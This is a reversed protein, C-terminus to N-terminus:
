KRAFYQKFDAYFRDQSRHLLSIKGNFPSKVSSHLATSPAVITYSGKEGNTLSYNYSVPKSDSKSPGPKNEIKVPSSQQLQQPTVPVAPSSAIVNNIAPIQASSPKKNGLAAALAPNTGANPIASLNKALRAKFDEKKESEQVPENPPDSTTIRSDVEKVEANSSAKIQDPSQLTAAIQANLNAASNVKNNAPAKGIAEQSAAINVASANKSGASDELASMSGQSAAKDLPATTKAPYSNMLQQELKKQQEQLQKGISKKQEELEHLPSLEGLARFAYM